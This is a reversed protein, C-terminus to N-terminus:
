RYDSRSPEADAGALTPAAVDGASQAAQGAFRMQLRVGYGDSMGLLTQSIEVPARAYDGTGGTVAHCHDAKDVVQIAQM